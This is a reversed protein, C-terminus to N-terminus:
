YNPYIPLGDGNHGVVTNVDDYNLVPYLQATPTALNTTGWAAALATDASTANSLNIHEYGWLTYQGEIVAITSYAAGNFFM